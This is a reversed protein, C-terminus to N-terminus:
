WHPGPSCSDPVRSDKTEKNIGCVAEQASPQWAVQAPHRKCEWSEKEPCGAERPGLTHRAVQQAVHTHPRRPRRANTGRALQTGGWPEGVVCSRPALSRQAWRSQQRLLPTDRAWPPLRPPDPGHPGEPTWACPAGVVAWSHFPAGLSCGLTHHGTGSTVPAVAAAPGWICRPSPFSPGPPLPAATYVARCM